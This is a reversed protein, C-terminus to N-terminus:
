WGEQQAFEAENVAVQLAYRFSGPRIGGLEAMRLAAAQVPVIEFLPALTEPVVPVECGGVGLASSEFSPGVVRILGGFRALDHALALNLERTKGRRLLFSDASTVTSWKLQGTDFRHPRWASLRARLWRTLSFPEKMLLRAPPGERWCIFLRIPASSIM